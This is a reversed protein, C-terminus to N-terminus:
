FRFGVTEVITVGGSPLVKDISDVSVDFVKVLRHALDSKKVDGPSIVVYKGTLNKVADVPGCMVRSEKDIEVKGVALELKCRLYNRKGRIIFAGKPVFEGSQPTKSVQEPLVWYAQAEAFQKWAKSFSAAFVCAEELTKESIELDEGEVGKNKIVVSSAGQVDAHAYRDGERLYKKVVQENSKADRGGVVVNGDSSVFWRYREFWFVRGSEVVSEGVDEESGVKKKVSEMEEKTERVSREAGELKGRLKKNADYAKEANEAVSKRFDIKVEFVKGSEDRLNVILLNETPDFVKVIERENVASIRDEKDKLELVDKVETLVEELPKYNLYILDGELKKQEIKKNLEVISEMQQRLQRDLRGIKEEFGGMKKVKTKGIDIFTELGRVFREIKEYDADEYSKFEFPLVDFVVDDKELLIPQFNKERFIDLFDSFVEFIEDISEDDLDSVDVNKDVGARKCIEEAYIGGLNLNVALTRVLDAKSKRILSKFEEFDVDFPNVQGPPPTYIEHTKIVRHSWRQSILPSVIKDDPNVLVINGDSFFEIVLTYEGKGKGIKLKIVRDFEHQTVSKIVGNLLHKRLTMAFTSPKLPTKFEKDALCILKGNRIFVNEKRKTKRNNLRIL